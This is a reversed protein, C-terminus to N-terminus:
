EIVEDATALLTSPVKLGLANATRLNVVLEFKTPQEIPIDAPKEGKLIKDVLEAARRYQQRRDTGYSLLGGASVFDRSTYIALLRLKAALDVIQQRLGLLVPTELITLGTAGAKAAAELSAPLQDATRVECLELRQGRAAAASKLEPLAVTTFPNDPNMLVAISRIGPALEGLIQLRKGSIEATQSGLGTINAGPRNLSKVIGAGIPDGVSTFVVPITASASKAAKATLTGFGAVVVDPNAKFLEAALQPLREPKGDASRFDFILNKGESYGLEELRQRIIVADQDGLLGLYAVRYSKPAQQARAAFPLGAAAGALTLMFERRKM